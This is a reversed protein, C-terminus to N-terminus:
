TEKLSGWEKKMWEAINNGRCIIEDEGWNPFLAVIEDAMQFGTAIYYQKKDKPPLSGLTSNQRPSLLFLNGLWHRYSKDSSKPLIHEISNTPNTDFIKNLTQQANRPPDIIHSNINQLYLEYRYLVYRLSPKWRTYCDNRVLKNIASNIDYDKVIDYLNNKIETPSIHKVNINYALRVYDGVRKRADERCIDYMSFAVRQLYESLEIKDNPELHKSLDIAVLVLRVQDKINASFKNRQTKAISDSVDRIWNSREIISACGDLDHVLKNVSHMETHLRGKSPHCLTAAYRLISSNLKKTMGMSEYVTSWVGHLENIHDEGCNCVFSKGMLISKLSDLRPVPLGRSNLAEFASYAQSQDLMEYYVFKLNNRIYSVLDLLDGEWNNVFQECESIAADINQDAVTKATFSVRGERLYTKVYSSPDHNIELLLTTDDDKVLTAHLTRRVTEAEAITELKKALAKYLLTLTVIRQQGDVIEIRQYATTSINKIDKHIGVITSMFHDTDKQLNTKIDGFLAHRHRTEWSYFRQYPPIHFLRKAFLDDLTLYKPDPSVTNTVCYMKREYIYM